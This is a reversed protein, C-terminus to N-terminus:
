KALAVDVPLGPPLGSAGGADLFVAEVMFVLKARNDRNYLVPPTYEPRPSRYTVRALLPTARGTIAVGVRDGAKLAAYDTEPVFFRVKLNEPPLLAVVPTGASAFEGERFLTDYVFADRPASQSKQAVAWDARELTARAGAVDAEAAVLTDSRAGLQATAFQAELETIQRQNAEHALRSRDFDDDAVIKTDHLQTTRALERASLDAATRAQALRADLAALETPRAGKGLDALRAQLTRLQAAAQAQAALESAHELTFLPMGAAVTAGKEVSLKEIKGALPAAVYIFDGELYGQWGTPAPSSCGAFVAFACAVAFFASLRM